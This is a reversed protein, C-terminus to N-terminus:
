YVHHCWDLWGFQRNTFVEIQFLTRKGLFVIWTPQCHFLFVYDSTEPKLKSINLIFITATKIRSRDTPILWASWPGHGPLDLHGRRSSQYTCSLIVDFFSLLYTMKYRIGNWCFGKRLFLLCLYVHIQRMQRLQLSDLDFIIQLCLELKNYFIVLRITANMTITCLVVYLSKMSLGELTTVLATIRVGITRYPPNFVVPITIATPQLLPGAQLVHYWFRSDSHKHFRTHAKM